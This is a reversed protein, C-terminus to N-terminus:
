FKLDAYKTIVPVIKRLTRADVREVESDSTKLAEECMDTRYFTQEVVAPEKFSILPVHGYNALAQAITERLIRDADGYSEAHNRCAAKKVAGVYLGPIYEAAPM